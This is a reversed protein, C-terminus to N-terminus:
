FSLTDYIQGIEQRRLGLYRRTVSVSAHNLIEALVVLSQEGRGAANENEWVKRAFTKRMSHTSIHDIPLRYRTKVSKLKENVSQRSIVNGYRNLFCYESDNAIHLARYCDVIHERFGSNIKIERRKGTKKETVTFSDVNTIMNWKLALLDSIRLGFFCGCGILLSMRIDGDRFLKRIVNMAADWSIYDATTNSHKLSMYNKNLPAKVGGHNTLVSQNDNGLPLIAM